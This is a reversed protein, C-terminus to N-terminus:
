VELRWFSHIGNKLCVYYEDDIQDLEDYETPLLFEEKDTYLGYYFKRDYRRGNYTVFGGIPEGEIETFKTIAVKSIMHLNPADVIAFGKNILWTWQVNGEADIFYQRFDSPGFEGNRTYVKILNEGYETISDISPELLIKRLKTDYIGVLETDYDNDGLVFEFFRDDYFYGDFFTLKETGPIIDGRTDILHGKRGRSYVFAVGYKNFPKAEDYIFPIVTEGRENIYGMHNEYYRKGDETRYWTRNLNVCALGETFDEAYAYQPEIVYEGAKNKFGFTGFCDDIEWEIESVSEAILPEKTKQAAIHVYNWYDDDENELDKKDEIENEVYDEIENGNEDIYQEDILFVRKERDILRVNKTEVEFVKILKM